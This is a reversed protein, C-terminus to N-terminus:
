RSRRRERMIRLLSGGVVRAVDCLVYPLLLHRPCALRAFQLRTRLDNASRRSWLSHLLDCMGGSAVSAHLGTAETRQSLPVDPCMLLTWGARAARCAFEYDAAYQPLHREDFMGIAAFAEVPILMGCGSLTDVPVLDGASYSGSASSGRHLPLYKATSWRIRMGGDVIVDPDDARVTVSGILARTARHVAALLADVYGEPCLTDNNLTLVYDGPAANSLAWAVGRNTAGSWWLRGDGELLIVEPFDRRVLAATEDPSGDDVVITTHSDGQRRLTELCAATFASRGHVPIVVFIHDM